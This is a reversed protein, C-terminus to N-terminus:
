FLGMEAAFKSVPDRDKLVARMEDVLASRVRRYEGTATELVHIERGVKRYVGGGSKQGLAGQEVLAALWEPPQYCDRWPDDPLNDYMSRAVHVFTDLGVVDATRLTASKPRGIGAGTWERM